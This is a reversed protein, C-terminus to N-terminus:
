SLVKLRMDGWRGVNRTPLRRTARGPESALATPAAVYGVPEVTAPTPTLGAVFEHNPFVNVSINQRCGIGKGVNFKM